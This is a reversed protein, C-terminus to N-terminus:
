HKWKGMEENKIQMKLEANVKKQHADSEKKLTVICYITTAVYPLLLFLGSLIKAGMSFFYIFPFLIPIASLFIKSAFKDDERWYAEDPPPPLIELGGEKSYKIRKKISALQGYKIRFRSPYYWALYLSLLIYGIPFLSYLSISLNSSFLILLFADAFIVVGYYCIWCIWSKKFKM